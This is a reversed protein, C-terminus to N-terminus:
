VKEGIEASIFTIVDSSKPTVIGVVLTVLHSQSFIVWFTTLIGANCVKM